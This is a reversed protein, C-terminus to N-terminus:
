QNAKAQLTCPQYSIDMSRRVQSIVIICLVFTYIEDNKELYFDNVNSFLFINKFYILM